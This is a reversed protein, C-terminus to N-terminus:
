GERWGAQARLGRWSELEEVMDSPTLLGKETLYGTILAAPVPEFYINVCIEPRGAWLEGGPMEELTVTEATVGPDIKFTDAAVLCPKGCAAAALAAGHSGTKNIAALDGAITDAGILVADSRAVFLAVEADTICRVARGEDLLRECVHRGELRPRSEAVIFLCDSPAAELLLRLVTSSYSLTLLSAFGALPTRAGAVLSDANGRRWEELEEFVADWPRDALRAEGAALRDALARHFCLGWNGIPAMSPRLGGLRRVLGAVRDLLFAEAGEPELEGAWWGCADALLALGLGALEAAGKERDEAIEALRGELEVLAPDM